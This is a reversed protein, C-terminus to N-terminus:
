GTPKELARELTSLQDRYRARNSRILLPLLLWMWGYPRVDCTFTVKTGRATPELVYEFTGAVGNAVNRQGIRRPPDFACVESVVQLEKGMADLTVAVQTGQRVPGNGIVEMRRVLNRWRPANSFDTIFAFIDAPPRAIERTFTFSRM